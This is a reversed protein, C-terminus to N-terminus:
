LLVTLERYQHQLRATEKSHKIM